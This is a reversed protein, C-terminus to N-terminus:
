RSSLQRGNRYSTIIPRATALAPPTDQTAISASRAICPILPASPSLHYNILNTLSDIPSSPPAAHNHPTSHTTQPLPQSLALNFAGLGRSAQEGLRGPAAEQMPISSLRPPLRALM